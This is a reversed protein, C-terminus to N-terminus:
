LRSCGISAAFNVSSARFIEGAQQDIAFLRREQNNVAVGIREHRQELRLHQDVGQLFCPPEASNITLFPPPWGHNVIASSTLTMASQNSLSSLGFGLALRLFSSACTRIFSAEHERVQSFPHHADADDGAGPRIEHLNGRDHPSERRVADRGADDVGALVVVLPHAVREKALEFDRRRERVEFGAGARAMACVASIMFRSSGTSSSSRGSQTTTTPSTLEVTAAAIVM